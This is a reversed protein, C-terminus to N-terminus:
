KKVRSLVRAELDPPLQGRPFSKILDIDQSNAIPYVPEARALGALINGQRDQIGGQLVGFVKGSKTSFVPGGSNGYTATLNLQFLKLQEQPIDVTPVISSISGKTFSPTITGIQEFLFNGLPYGCTAVEDGESLEAYPQIELTPYGNPLARHPLARILALDYDTRAIIQDVRSLFAQIKHPVNAPALFVAYPAVIQVPELPNLQSNRKEPSISAVQDPIPRRMFASVVHQCTVIVGAKDVCFGSGIITYPKRREGQHFLVVGVTARRVRAFIEKTEPANM